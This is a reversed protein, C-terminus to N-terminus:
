STAEHSKVMEQLELIVSAPPDSWGTEWKALNSRATDLKKALQDQTLRLDRRAEKIFHAVKNMIFSSLVFLIDKDLVFLEKSQFYNKVPVFRKHYAVKWFSFM